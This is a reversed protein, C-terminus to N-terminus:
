FRPSLIEHYGPYYYWLGQRLEASWNLTRERKKGEPCQRPQSVRSPGWKTELLRRSSTNLSLSYIGKHELVTNMVSILVIQKGLLRVWKEGYAWSPRWIESFLQVNMVSSHNRSVPRHTDLSSFLSECVCVCVCGALWGRIREQIWFLGGWSSVGFYM